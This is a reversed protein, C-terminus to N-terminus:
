EPGVQEDEPEPPLTPQTPASTERIHNLWQQAARRCQEDSVARNFSGAAAQVKRQEFQAMGLLLHANCARPLGGKRVADQLAAEAEAWKEQDVLIYGRQMDLKGDASLAGARTYAALAKDMEQASYWANGLDEWRRQTSEIIGKSLGEELIQAAKYPVEAYSYLQYLQVWETERDLLGKRHALASVSLASRTDDMAMHMSILQTWYSKRNPDRQILFELVRAAQPYQKLEFHAAMKLQYWTDPGDPRMAIAREIAGLAERYRELRAYASAQMEYAAPTVTDTYAFWEDLARLGQEFQEMMIYVTAIQYMMQFHAHNPLVDMRVVEQMDRLALDLRDQVSYVFGRAQIVTARDFDSLGSRNLVNTLGAMAETYKEEGIQEYIRTLDRHLRESSILGQRQDRTKTPRHQQAESQAGRAQQASAAFSTALLCAAAIALLWAALHIRIMSM